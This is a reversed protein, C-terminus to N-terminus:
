NGLRIRSFNSMDQQEGTVLADFEYEYETFRYEYEYEVIEKPRERDLVFFSDFHLTDSQSVPRDSLV